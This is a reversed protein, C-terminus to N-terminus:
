EGVVVLLSMLDRGVMLYRTPALIKRRNEVKREVKRRKRRKGEREDNVGARSVHRELGKGGYLETDARTDEEEKEEKKEEKKEGEGGKGEVCGCAGWPGNM